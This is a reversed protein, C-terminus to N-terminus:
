SLFGKEKMEGVFMELVEGIEPALSGELYLFILGIRPPPLRNSLLLRSDGDRCSMARLKRLSLSPSV